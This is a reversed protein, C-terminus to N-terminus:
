GASPRRVPLPRAGLAQAVVALEEELAAGYDELLRLTRSVQALEESSRGDAEAPRVGALARLGAGPDALPGGRAALWREVPGGAAAAEVPVRLDELEVVGAVLLDRRARVLRAWHGVRRVEDTLLDRRRRLLPLPLADLEARAVRVARRAAGVGGSTRGAPEAPGTSATSATSTARQPERPAAPVDLPAAPPLVLPTVLPADPAAAVELAPADDGPVAPGPHEVPDVDDGPGGAKVARAAAEGERDM